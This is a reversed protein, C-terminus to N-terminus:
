VSRIEGDLDGNASSGEVTDRSTLQSESLRRNIEQSPRSDYYSDGTLTPAAQLHSSYDLTGQSLTVDTTTSSTRTLQGAEADSQNASAQTLSAELAQLEERPTEALLPDGLAQVRESKEEQPTELPTSETLSAALASLEERPTEVPTLQPTDALLARQLNDLEERPTQQVEHDSWRVRNQDRLRLREQERMLEQEADFPHLDRYQPMDPGESGESSAQEDKRSMADEAYESRHPTPPEAWVSPEITRAALGTAVEPTGLTTPEPVRHPDPLDIVDRNLEAAVEQPLERDTPETIEDPAIITPSDAFEVVDTPRGLLPISTAVSSNDSILSPDAATFTIGSPSLPPTISPTAERPEEVVDPVVPVADERIIEERPLQQEGETGDLVEPAASSTRDGVNSYPEDGDDEVTYEGNVIIGGEDTTTPIFPIDGEEASVEAGSDEHVATLSPYVNAMVNRTSTDDILQNPIYGQHSTPVGFLYGPTISSATSADTTPFINSPWPQSVSTQHLANSGTFPQDGTQWTSEPIYQAQSHLITVSSGLPVDGMEPEVEEYGYDGMLDTPVHDINATFYEDLHASADREVDDDYDGGETDNEDAWPPSFASEPDAHPQEEAEEVVDEDDEIEFVEQDELDEDDEGAEAEEENWSGQSGNVEEEVEEEVDVLEQRPTPAKDNEEEDDSIVFPSDEDGQGALVVPQKSIPNRLADEPGNEDDNEDDNEDYEENEDEEQDEEVDVSSRPVSKAGFSSNGISTDRGFSLGRYGFSADSDRDRHHLRARPDLADRIKSTLGGVFDDFERQTFQEYPNVVPTDLRVGSKQRSHSM